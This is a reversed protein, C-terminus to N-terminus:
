YAGRGGIVARVTRALILLDLRVTRKRVYFRDLRGMRDLSLDSRGLVQWLGTIGPLVTHRLARNCESMTAVVDAPLPRPGVLNMQGLAVNLVQPLEDISSRRVLRAFRGAIRRDSTLRGYRKWEELLAPDQALSASLRSEADEVMTRLKFMHFTIGDKGVRPTRLLMSGRSNLCIIGGAVLAVIMAPVVLLCAITQQM